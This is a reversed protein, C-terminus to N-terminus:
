PAPDKPPREDKPPPVPRMGEAKNEKDAKSDQPPPPPDNPKSECGPAACCVAFALALLVRKMALM